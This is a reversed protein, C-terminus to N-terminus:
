RSIMPLFIEFEQWEARLTVAINDLGWSEDGVQQLGLAEFDLTLAANSHPFTRTIRYVSDQPLDHFTYGLSLAEAAGTHSPHDGVPFDGPYAQRFNPWNTFTTDVLPQGDALFRWRDPGIAEAASLAQYAYFNAPPATQNGDWSRLILLDFAVTVFRHPPLDTLILRVAGPETNGFEGLFTRGNPATSRSQTSWGPGVGGAFGDEYGVQETMGAVVFHWQNDVPNPDQERGAVAITGGVSGGESRLRLPLDLVIRGNAPLDNLLCVATQGTMTCGHDPPQGAFELGTALTITVVVGTALGPGRNLITLSRTFALGPLVTTENNWGLVALDAADAPAVTVTLRATATLAGDSVVYAIVEQGTFGLSPTYVVSEGVAEVNGNRAAGVEVLALPDGDVEVDNALVAVSIPTEQGTIATDDQPRPADDVPEITLDVGASDRNDDGDAVTYAFSDEGNFDLAPQYRVSGDALLTVSGHQPQFLAAIALADGDPDRDNALLDLILARDESGSALDSGAEPPDPENSVIIDLVGRSQGGQGDAVLYTVRDRGSFNAEPVYTVGGGAAPYALGHRPQTVGVLSLTDGDVDTDNALVVVTVSSEEATAAGDDKALPPDNVPRVTLTIIASEAAIAGDTVTYRLLDVGHANPRPRYVITGDPNLRASGLSGQVLGVVMLDAVDGNQWGDNARVDFTVSGDEDTTVEDGVASIVGPQPGVIVTVRGAQGQTIVSPALASPEGLTYDFGDVGQFGPDPTYTFGDGNLFVTGSMPQTFGQIGLNDNEPNNDNGLPDMEVPTDLETIAADDVANPDDAVPNVTLSVLGTDMAGASDALGYTFSDSGSYDPDPVYRVSGDENLSTSGHGPPDIQALSLTDGDPDQDNALLDLDLPTDEDTEGADDVAVPSRNVARVAIIVRGTAIGGHNDGVTYDFQDAGAFDTDPTYRLGSGMRRVKGHQAPTFGVVRLSDGDPDSDNALVAVTVAVNRNTQATDVQATPPDNVPTITVTVTASATGATGAGAATAAVYTFSDTGFFNTNPAYRVQNGQRTTRGHGPQGVQVLQLAAGDVHSDNALVAIIIRTDEPTTARDDVATVINGVLAVLVTVTATDTADAGGSGDSVTYTFQDLGVFGSAPTYRVQDSGVVASQGHGPTSVGIVTLSEGDVDTDNLLVAVTVAVDQATSAADDEAHPADNIPTVTVRVTATATRGSADAITYQFSDDGHYDPSPRYLIAGDSGATATGHRPLGMSALVPSEGDPDSDNALVSITASSDEALSVTDDQATPPDNVPTITLRVTAQALGGRRDSITYTFQDTGAFNAGPTYRLNGTGNLVVTGHAAAGINVISLRDGDPDSDNELPRLTIAQDESLTATDDVAM